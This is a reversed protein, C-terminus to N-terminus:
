CLDTQLEATTPAALATTPAARSSWGPASQLLTTPCPGAFAPGSAKLAVRCGPRATPRVAPLGSEDDGDGRTRKSRCPRQLEALLDEAQRM